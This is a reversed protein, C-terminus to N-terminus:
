EYYEEMVKKAIPVDAPLLGYELLNKIKIWTYKENV